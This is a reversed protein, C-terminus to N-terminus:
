GSVGGKYDDDKDDDSRAHREVSGSANRFNNPKCVKERMKFLFFLFISTISFFLPVNVIIKRGSQTQHPRKEKKKKKRNFNQTM